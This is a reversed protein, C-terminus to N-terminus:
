RGSRSTNFFNKYDVGNFVSVGGYTGFWLSGKTDQYICSIQSQVVGEKISSFNYDQAFVQICSFLLLFASLFPVRSLVTILNTIIRLYSKILLIIYSM